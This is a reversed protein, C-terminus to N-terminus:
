FRRNRYLPRAGFGAPRMAVNRRLGLGQGSQMYGPRSFGACYGLGRGTRPGYGLPGTGDGGSM